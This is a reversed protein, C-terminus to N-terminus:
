ASTEFAFWKHFKFSLIKTKLVRQTGKYAIDMAKSLHYMKFQFIFCIRFSM